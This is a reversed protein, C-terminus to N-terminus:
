RGDPIDCTIMAVGRGARYAARCGAAGKRCSRRGSELLPHVLALSAATSAARTCGAGHLAKRYRRGGLHVMRVGDFLVDVLPGKLHGGKVLVAEPGLHRIARAAAEMSRVDRISLGSLREAEHRNPTVL